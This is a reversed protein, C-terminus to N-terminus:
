KNKHTQRSIYDQLARSLTDLTFTNRETASVNREMIATNRNIAEAAQERAHIHESNMAEQVKVSRREREEDYDRNLKDRRELYRILIIVVVVVAISQPSSKLLEVLIDM